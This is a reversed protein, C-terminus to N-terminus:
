VEHYTATDANGGAYGSVASTVGHVHQFVGQVGWFCGGAFVATESTRGAAPEDVAPAPVMVASEAGASAGTGTFAAAALAMTAVAAAPTRLRRGPTPMSIFRLPMSPTRYPPPPRM